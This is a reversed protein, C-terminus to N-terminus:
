YYTITRVIFKDAARGDAFKMIMHLKVWNGRADDSYVYSTNFSHGRDSEAVRAPDDDLQPIRRKGFSIRRGNRAYGYTLVYSGDNCPSTAPRSSDDYSCSLVAATTSGLFNRSRAFRGQSDLEVGWPQYVYKEKDAPTAGPGCSEGQFDVHGRHCEEVLKGTRDFRLSAEIVPGGFFGKLDSDWTIKEVPGTTGISDCAAEHVGDWNLPCFALCSVGSLNLPSNDARTELRPSRAPGIHHVLIGLTWAAAVFGSALVINLSTPKRSSM